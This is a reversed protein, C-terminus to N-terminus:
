MSPPLVKRTKLLVRTRDRTRRRPVTSRWPGTTTFASGRGKWPIQLITKAGSFLRLILELLFKSLFFLFFSFSICLTWLIYQILSELLVKPVFVCCVSDSHANM